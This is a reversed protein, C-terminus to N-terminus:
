LKTHKKRQAQLARETGDNISNYDFRDAGGGGILRDDGLGGTLVDGAAGGM